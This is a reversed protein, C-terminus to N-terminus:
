AFKTRGPIAVAVAPAEGFAYREPGLRHESNLAQEWSITQGTYAAERGMIALLTSRAMWEGDNIPEGRRISAFMEDHEQQYMDNGPGAYKWPNPGEITHGDSWGKVTALGGTGYIYDSNDTSCNALQRSMHFGRAGGAYDYTVSFHDFVDGREEGFRAQRGGVATCSLPPVDGFAWAMKDLSHCAQEVISDGGLWNFHQWNRMQFDMETWEPRREHTGLPSANYTNYVAQVEGVGGDLVREYLARHRLNYRWCFGAVLARQIEKARAASELVSRVGPGDVAMPKECFIHAGADLSARIHAPRFHPPATLIVVDVGSDLVQQYADFGVFRREPPVDMRAGAQDELNDVLTEHSSELRDAFADAM